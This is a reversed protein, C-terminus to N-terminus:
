AKKEARSFDDSTLFKGTKEGKKRLKDIFRLVFATVRILRTLWSFKKIEIGLSHNNSEGEHDRESVVHNCCQWQQM